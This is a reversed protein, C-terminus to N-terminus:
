KFFGDVSHFFKNNQDRRKWRNGHKQRGAGSHDLFGRRRRCGRRMFLHGACWGNLRRRRMRGATVLEPKSNLTPRTFGRGM